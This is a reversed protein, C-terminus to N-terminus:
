ARSSDRLRQRAQRVDVRAAEVEEALRIMHQRKALFLFNAAELLLASVLSYAAARWLLATSWLEDRLGLQWLVYGLGVGLGNVGIGISGRAHRLEGALQAVREEATRVSERLEGVDALVLRVREGRVVKHLTGCSGCKVQDGHEYSAPVHVDVRCSLCRTGSTPPPAEAPTM